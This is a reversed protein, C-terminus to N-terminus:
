EGKPEANRQVTVKDGPDCMIMRSDTFVMVSKNENTTDVTISDVREWWVEKGEGVVRLLDGTKLDKPYVFIM